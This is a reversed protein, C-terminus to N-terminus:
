FPVELQRRRFATACAEALKAHDALKKTAAGDLKLFRATAM